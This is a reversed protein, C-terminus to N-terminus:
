FGFVKEPVVVIDGQGIPTDPIEGEEIQKINVPIKHKRGDVGSRLLHVKQDDAFRGMGGSILIAEYVGLDRDEPLRLVHQGPRNVKGTFFVVISRGDTSPGRASGFADGNGAPVRFVRDVIITAKKLQRAELAREIADRAGAVSMGAVPIRGIGSMIIDGGERVGYVGDYGKDEEVFIELQEGVKISDDKTQRPQFPSAEPLRPPPIEDSEHPGSSCGALAIAM